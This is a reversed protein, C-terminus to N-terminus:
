YFHIEFNNCASYENLVGASYFILKKMRKLVGTVECLSLTRINLVNM